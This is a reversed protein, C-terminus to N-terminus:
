WARKARRRSKTNESIASDIHYENRLIHKAHAKTTKIKQLTSAITKYEMRKQITETSYGLVIYKLVKWESATLEHKLTNALEFTGRQIEVTVNAPVNLLEEDVQSRDTYLGKRLDKRMSSIYSNIDRYAKATVISWICSYESPVNYDNFGFRQCQETLSLGAIAIFENLMEGHKPYYMELGSDAYATKLAKWAVVNAVDM